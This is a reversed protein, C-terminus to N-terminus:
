ATDNKIEAIMVICGGYKVPLGRVITLKQVQVDDEYIGADQCSDLIGKLANDLDLLKKSRPQLIIFVELPADYLKPINNEIVYEAVAQKFAMGRKSIYRRHGGAMWYANVSPPYPLNLTIM